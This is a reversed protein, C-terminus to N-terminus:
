EGEKLTNVDRFFGTPKEARRFAVIGILKREKKWVKM